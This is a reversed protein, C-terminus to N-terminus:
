HQSYVHLHHILVVMQQPIHDSTYVQKVFMASSKLTLVARQSCTFM